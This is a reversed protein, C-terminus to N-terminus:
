NIEQLDKVFYAVDALDDRISESKYYQSILSVGLIAGEGQGEGTPEQEERQPEEKQGVVQVVRLVEQLKKVEQLVKQDEKLDM